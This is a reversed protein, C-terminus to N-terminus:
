SDKGSQENKEKKALVKELKDLDKSFSKLEKFFEKVPNSKRKKKSM